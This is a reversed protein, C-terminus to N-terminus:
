VIPFNKTLRKGLSTYSASTFSSVDYYTDISTEEIGMIAKGSTHMDFLSLRYEDVIRMHTGDQGIM